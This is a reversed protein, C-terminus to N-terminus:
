LRQGMFLVPHGRFDRLIEHTFGNKRYFSVNREAPSTVLHVGPVQMKKLRTKLNDVLATGVGKGRAKPHANMHLHAPFEQFLDAFLDYSKLINKFYTRAKESDPECMLYALVEDDETALSIFDPRNEFYYSTWKTFFAENKIPDDSVNAPNASLFFIERIRHFTAQDSRNVFTQISISM